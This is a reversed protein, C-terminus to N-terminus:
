FSLEGECIQADLVVAGEVAAQDKVQIQWENATDKFAVSNKQIHVYKAHTPLM